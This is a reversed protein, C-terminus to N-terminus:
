WIGGKKLSIGESFHEERSRLFRFHM